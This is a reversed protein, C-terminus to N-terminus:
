SRSKNRKDVKNKDCGAQDTSITENLMRNCDGTYQSPYDEM